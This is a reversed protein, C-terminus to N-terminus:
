KRQILEESSFRDYSLTHYFKGNKLAKLAWNPTKESLYAAKKIIEEFEHNAHEIEITYQASNLRNLSRVRAIEKSFLKRDNPHCFSSSVIYKQTGKEHKIAFCGYGKGFSTAIIAYTVREDKNM